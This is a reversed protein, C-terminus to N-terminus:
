IWPIHRFMCLHVFKCKYLIDMQWHVTYLFHVVVNLLLLHPHCPLLTIFLKFVVSCYLLCCITSMEGVIYVQVTPWCSCDNFWQSNTHDLHAETMEEISTLSFGHSEKQVGASEYFHNAALRAVSAWLIVGEVAGWGKALGLSQWASFCYTRVPLFLHIFYSPILSFSLTFSYLLLVQTVFMLIVCACVPNWLPM